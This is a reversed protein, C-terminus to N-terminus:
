DWPEPYDLVYEPNWLINNRKLFELVGEEDDPTFPQGGELGFRSLVWGAFGPRIKIFLELDELGGSFSNHPDDAWVEWPREGEPLGSFYNKIMEPDTIKYIVM